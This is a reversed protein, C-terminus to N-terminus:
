NLNYLTDLKHLHAKLLKRFVTVVPDPYGVVRFYEDEAAQWHYMPTYAPTKVLVPEGVSNKLRPHDSVVVFVIGEPLPVPGNKAPMVSAPQYYNAFDFDYKEGFEERLVDWASQMRPDSIVQEPLHDKGAGPLLLGAM